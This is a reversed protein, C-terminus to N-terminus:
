LTRFGFKTNNDIWVPIDLAKPHKWAKRDENKWQLGYYCKSGDKLSDRFGFQRLVKTIFKSFHNGPIGYFGLEKYIYLQLAGRQVRAQAPECRQLVITLIRENLDQRLALEAQIYKHFSHNM